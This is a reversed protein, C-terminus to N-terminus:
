KKKCKGGKRLKAEDNQKNFLKLAEEFNSLQEDSVKLNDTQRKVHEQYTENPKRDLESGLRELVQNYDVQGFSTQSREITSM